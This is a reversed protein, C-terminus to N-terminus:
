NIRAFGVSAPKGILNEAVKGEAMLKALMGFIEDCAALYKDIDEHTHAYMAYFTNSALFGRKLMEQVYHKESVIVANANESMQQFYRYDTVIDEHEQEAFAEIKTRHAKIDHFRKFLNHFQRKNDKYRTHDQSM